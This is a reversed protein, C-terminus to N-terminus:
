YAHSKTLFPFFNKADEAKPKDFCLEIFELLDDPELLAAPNGLLYFYFLPSANALSAFISAVFSL